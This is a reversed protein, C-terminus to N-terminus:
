PAWMFDVTLPLGGIVLDKEQLRDWYKGSGKMVAKKFHDWSMLDM